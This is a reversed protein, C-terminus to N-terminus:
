NSFPKRRKPIKVMALLLSVEEFGFLFLVSAYAAASLPVATAVLCFAALRTTGCHGAVNKCLFIVAVLVASASLLPLAKSKQTKTKESPCWKKKKLKRAFLFCQLLASISNAVAIGTAGFPGALALTLAINAAISIAAVAVPSAMDQRAHFAKASLGSLAFLPIAAASIQLAPLVQVLDDAACNGWAFLLTLIPEGLLIFGLASPISVM